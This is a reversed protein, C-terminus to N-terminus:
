RIHNPKSQVYSQSDRHLIALYMSVPRALCSSYWYKSAALGLSETNCEANPTEYETCSSGALLDDAFTHSSLCICHSRSASAQLMAAYM